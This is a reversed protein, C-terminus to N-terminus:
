IVEAVVFTSGGVFLLDDKDAEKKATELAEKVTAFCKGDLGCKRAKERLETEPLARKISAKTFYYVANKPLIPLIHDIDKDNVMGYIIRLTKHPTEQLQKSIYSIGAINHGTDCIVTPNEQLRQWRGQLGTLKITNAFGEHLSEDTIKFGLKQLRKVAFWATPMNKKQYSGLLPTSIRDGNIEFIQRPTGDTNNTGIFQCETKDEVFELDTGVEVAKNIFVDKTEPLFEGVIAPIGKKIIGAKEQAIAQLTNGLINIHDISINTIVSLVPTIINTSDLRGGLGVEVVAVDVKQKKFYDFAMAVNVEFFSPYIVDFYDKHKEVFDIVFQEPVPEGNVRIRERFDKLHPSTFLGVKYGSAQLVSAITHSVSGKGNTGGVHICKFAKHPNGIHNDFEIMGDIGEKYAASGVMQFLPLRNYIFELTESYNM